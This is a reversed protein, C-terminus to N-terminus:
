YGRARDALGPPPEGRDLAALAAVLSRATAESDPPSAIHPTITLRPHRWLPSEAPLPERVFVDSHACSLHGSDLSAVLDAEVVQGGRGAAVVAAGQPLMALRAADLLGTTEPTLPLLVVLVDSRALVGPLAAMGHAVEIGPVQKPGRSWGHVPLGLTALARAAAQGMSGMGLIGVRSASIARPRLRKWQGERQSALYADHHGLIRLVAHTVHRAMGLAPSDDIVRCVPIGAPLDPAAFIDNVGAGSAHVLRLNPLATFIGPPPRFVVLAEAEADHDPWDLIRRDPFAARIANGLPAQEFGPVAVVIPRNAKHQAVRRREQEM